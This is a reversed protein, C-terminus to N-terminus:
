GILVTAVGPAIKGVDSSKCCSAQSSITAAPKGGILVTQSGSTVHGIQGPPAAFPADVIGAHAPNDNIGSSGNVAAPKGGILVTPITGLAIPASFARPGAATTGSPAPMLHSTCIGIIRNGAVVAPTGM